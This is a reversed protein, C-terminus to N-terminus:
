DCSHVEPLAFKLQSIMGPLVLIAEGGDALRENLELVAALFAPDPAEAEGGAVAETETEGEGELRLLYLGRSVPRLLAALAENLRASQQESHRRQVPCSGGFRDPHLARQLRRHAERLRRPELRFTRPAGLLRFYDLRRDPPQLAQCAPCFFDPPEPGPDPQAAGCRWCGAPSSCFTRPALQTLLGLGGGTSPTIAARAPLLRGGTVAPSLHLLVLLRPGPRCARCVLGRLM